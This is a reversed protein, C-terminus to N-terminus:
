IWQSAYLVTEDPFTSYHRIRFRYEPVIEHLYDMIALMDAVRHYISIALFPKDRMLTREAGYLGDLESGEIDLKIFGVINDGVVQDMSEMCVAELTESPDILDYLLAGTKIYETFCSSQQNGVAFSAVGEKKSLGAQRLEFNSLGAAQANKRCVDANQFDPEFAFIKSYQGKCWKSFYISDEANYCGGDVFATGQRFFEPFEFYQRGIGRMFDYSLLPLIHDAPFKWKLLLSKIEDYYITTAIIVYCNNQHKLLHEISYIPEALGKKSLVAANQDCFGTFPVGEYRFMKAYIKGCVGAGYLLVQKGDEYLARIRALCNKQEKRQQANLCAGDAYLDIMNTIGPNVDFKLRDWFLARSQDDQLLAYLESMRKVFDYQSNM